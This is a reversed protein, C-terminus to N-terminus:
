EATVTVTVTKTYEVGGYTISATIDATGASEGTVVGGSVTAVAENSSKWTVTQGAPKTTATLTTTSGSAVTATGTISIGVLDDPTPISQFFAAVDADSMNDGGQAKVVNGLSAIFVTTATITATQTQPETSDETTQGSLAPRNATCNYLCYPTGRKDGDFQFFLAFHKPSGEAVEFLNGNVDEKLGLIEVQFPQPVLASEFDGQYGSNKDSVYYAIGDAWFTNQSGQADLSLSVAGKWPKIEGYTATGNAAVDGGIMPAYHVNKLNYKVKNSM